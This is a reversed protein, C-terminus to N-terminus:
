AGYRHGTGRGFLVGKWDAAGTPVQSKERSERVGKWDTVLCASEAVLCRLEAREEEDGM